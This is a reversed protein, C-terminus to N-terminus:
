SEEDTDASEQAALVARLTDQMSKVRDGLRESVDVMEEDDRATAEAPPGLGGDDRRPEDGDADDAGDGDLDGVAPDWRGAGTAPLAGGAAVHRRAAKPDVPEDPADEALHDTLEPLDELSDLGIDELFRTTTGYLVPQGPSDVRGVEEVYGRAVLSRLAGDPNVGRIEGVVARTIPQRYAIVSLTELAATTLRGSRGSMVHRDVVPWAVPAAYMRWGGGARRVAIGRGDREFQAGMLACADDVEAEHAGVAEALVPTPVPEDALFLLAELGATQEADM